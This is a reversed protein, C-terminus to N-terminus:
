DDSADDGFLFQDLVDDPTDADVELSRFKGAQADALTDLVVKAVADSGGRIFASLVPDPTNDDVIMHTGREDVMAVSLRQKICASLEDKTLVAPFKGAITQGAQIIRKQVGRRRISRSNRGSSM